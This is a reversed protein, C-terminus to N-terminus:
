TRYSGICNNNKMSYDDTQKTKVQPVKRGYRKSRKPKDPDTLQYPPINEPLIKNPIFDLGLAFEFPQGESKEGTNQGSGSKKM